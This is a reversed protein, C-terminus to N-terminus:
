IYALTKAGLSWHMKVAYYQYLQLRLMEVDDGKSTAKFSSDRSTWSFELNKFIACSMKCTEGVPM